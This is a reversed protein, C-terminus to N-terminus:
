FLAMLKQELTSIQAYANIQANSGATDVEPEVVEPETVDLEETNTEDLVEAEQVPEVTDPGVVPDSDFPAADVDEVPPLVDDNSGPAVDAEEVPPLVDDGGITDAEEVPKLVDDGGITSAEEAPPLVDDGGVPAPSSDPETQDIVERMVPNEIVILEVMQGNANEVEVITAKEIDANDIHFDEPTEIVEVSKHLPIVEDEILDLVEKASPLDDVWEIDEQPEVTEIAKKIADLDVEQDAIEM